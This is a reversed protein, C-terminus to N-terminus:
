ILKSKKAVQVIEALKVSNEGVFHEDNASKYLALITSAIVDATGEVVGGLFNLKRKSENGYKVHKIKGQLDRVRTALKFSDAALAAVDVAFSLEEEMHLVDERVPEIPIVPCSTPQFAKHPYVEKIHPFQQKLSVIVATLLKRETETIPRKSFDALICVGIGHENQGTCHYSMTDLYNTQYIKDKCIVITYGIRPWGRGNVHYAAQNKLPAESATHHLVIKNIENVSRLSYKRTPHNPLQDIINIVEPIGNQTFYPLLKFIM